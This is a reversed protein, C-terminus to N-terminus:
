PVIRTYTLRINGFPMRFKAMANEMHHLREDLPQTSDASNKLTCDSEISRYLTVYAECIQEYDNQLFRCTQCDSRMGFGSPPRHKLNM